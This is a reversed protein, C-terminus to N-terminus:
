LVKKDSLGNFDWIARWEESCLLARDTKWGNKVISDMFYLISNVSYNYSISLIGQVDGDDLATALAQLRSDLNQLFKVKREMVFNILEAQYCSLLENEVTSRENLVIFITRRKLDVNLLYSSDKYVSRLIDIDESSRCINSMSVGLKIDFKMRTPWVVPELYNVVSVPLITTDEFYHSALIHLRAMNLTEMVVATVASYNAYLHLFTFLVYLTWIIIEHGTVLPIMVLSCLLAALNVLTEQSGDKASVDAMNNRRAQHLTLAARTAGGAVGVIAQFVGAVCIIGTFLHPFSPALIKMFIALDNMMDAFLRWRKADCDLSSGKLWAFWIRGIMGTGDKLIWTMTAALITASEDGVGVGKLVAQSALTGTISSAFAQITDWIQYQLYDSSVSEPYGQPLFVDRFFQSVSTLPPVQKVVQLDDNTTQFYEKKMGSSGYNERCIRIEPM